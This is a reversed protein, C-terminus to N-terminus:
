LQGEKIHTTDNLTITNGIPTQNITYAKRQPKGTFLVHADSDSIFKTKGKHGIVNVQKDFVLTNDIKYEGAPIELTDGDNLSDYIAQIILSDDTVGDRNPANFPPPPFMVNIARSKLDNETKALQATFQTEKTDLRE